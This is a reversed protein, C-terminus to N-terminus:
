MLSEVSRQEEKTLPNLSFGKLEEKKELDRLKNVKPKLESRVNNIEKDLERYDEDLSKIAKSKEVKLFMKGACLWTKEGHKDKQLARIAERTKNKQRDLDIVERRKALIDEAVVEIDTLHRLLQSAEISDTIPFKQSNM